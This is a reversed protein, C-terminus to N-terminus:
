AKQEDIMIAYDALAPVPPTSRVFASAYWKQEDTLRAYERIYPSKLLDDNRLEDYTWGQAQRARLWRSHEPLIM